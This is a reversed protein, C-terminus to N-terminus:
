KVDNLRLSHMQRDVSIPNKTQYVNETTKFLTHKNSQNNQKVCENGRLKLIMAM